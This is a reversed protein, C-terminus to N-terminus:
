KDGLGIVAGSGHIERELETPKGYYSVSGSGNLKVSLRQTAWVVLNGSGPLEVRATTAQLDGTNVNGSGSLLAELEDVTGAATINGSGPIAFKLRDAVVQPVTVNGSGSLEIGELHKVTITYRVPRTTTVSTNPKTGIVLRGGRVESTLYPLLNDEAEIVVGEPEGIVVEAEGFGALAIETFGGLARTESALTGSGTITNATSRSPLYSCASLLLSLAMFVGLISRKTAM